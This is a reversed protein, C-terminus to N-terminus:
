AGTRGSRTGGANQAARHVARRIRPYTGCRCLNGAFAENIAADDPHPTQELLAVATLVQAPQCFGCQPVEEAIWAAVVPHAADLGEATRVRKGEIASVPTICARTPQGDVLVTCAGCAGIGCGYKAGTLQLHERLVWLLPTDPAVDVNHPLGNVVLAVM